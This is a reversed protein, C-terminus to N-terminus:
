RAVAEGSSGCGTIRAGVDIRLGEPPPVRGLRSLDAAFSVEGTRELPSAEFFERCPANKSTPLVDAVLRTAGADLAFQAALHLMADEVRRGFVRCSLVFDVLHAAGDHVEISFLGTLGASGLRDSVSVCYIDRGPHEAWRTLEDESCRRSTLNMQNTKNLLQTARALRESSLPDVKVLM